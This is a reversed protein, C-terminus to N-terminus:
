LVLMSDRILHTTQELTFNTCQKCYRQFVASFFYITEDWQTQGFSIDTKVWGFSKQNGQKRGRMEAAWM